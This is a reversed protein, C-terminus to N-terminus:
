NSNGSVTSHHRTNSLSVIFARSLSSRIMDKEVKVWGAIAPSDGMDLVERGEAVGTSAVGM